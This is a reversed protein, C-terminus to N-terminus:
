SKKIRACLAEYVKKCVPCPCEGWHDNAHKAVFAASSASTTRALVTNGIKVVHETGDVDAKVMM